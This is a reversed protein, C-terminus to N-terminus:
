NSEPAAYKGDRLSPWADEYPMIDTSLGPREIGDWGDGQFGHGCEPCEKKDASQPRRLLAGGVQIDRNKLYDWENEKKPPTTLLARAINETDPIPEPMKNKVPRGRLRPKEAMANEM